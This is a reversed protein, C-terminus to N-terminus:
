TATPRPTNTPAPTPLSIAPSPVVANAQTAPASFPGLTALLGGGILILVLAATIFRPSLLRRDKPPAIGDPTGTREVEIKLLADAILRDVEHYASSIARLETLSEVAESWQAARLQAMGRAYLAETEPTREDDM